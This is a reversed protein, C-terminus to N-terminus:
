GSPGRGRFVTEHTNGPKFVYHVLPRGDDEGGKFFPSVPPNEQQIAKEKPLGFGKKRQRAAADSDVPWQGSAVADMEKSPLARDWLAIQYLCGKWQGKGDADTGIVLPYERSWSGFTLAGTERFKRAKGDKYLSLKMGDFNILFRVREDKKLLDDAGFHIEKQRKYDPLHLVVGDKWQGVIFNM